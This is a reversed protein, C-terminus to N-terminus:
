LMFGMNMVCNMGDRTMPIIVEKVFDPEYVKGLSAVKVTLVKEMDGHRITLKTEGNKKPRVMGSTSIDLFDGEAAFQATRTLDISDGSATYGRVVVQAYDYVNNLDISSPEVGLAIVKRRDYHDAAWGAPIAVVAHCAMFASTLLGLEANSFEFASRLDEYMPLVINRNAYNFFNLSAFLTLVYWGYRRSRLLGVSRTPVDQPAPM